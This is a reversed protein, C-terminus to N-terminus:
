LCVCCVRFLPELSWPDLWAAAFPQQVPITIQSLGDARVQAVICATHESRGELIRKGYFNGVWDLCM